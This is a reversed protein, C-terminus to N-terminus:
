FNLNQFVANEYVPCFAFWAPEKEATIDTPLIQLRRYDYKYVCTFHDTPLNMASMGAASFLINLFCKLEDLLSCNLQNFFISYPEYWRFTSSKKPM